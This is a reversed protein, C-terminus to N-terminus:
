LSLRQKLNDSQDTNLRWGSIFEGSPSVLVVRRYNPDTYLAVPQGRYTGQIELIDPRDVFDRLAQKFSEASQTTYTGAIGFDTAHKGYKRQIQRDPWVIGDSAKM